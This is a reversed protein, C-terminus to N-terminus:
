FPIEALKQDIAYDPKAPETENALFASVNKIEAEIQDRKFMIKGALNKAKLDDIMIKIPKFGYRDYMEGFYRDIVQKGPNPIYREAADPVFVDCGLRGCENKEWSKRHTKEKKSLDKSKDKVNPIEKNPIQPPVTNGGLPSSYEGETVKHASSLEGRSQEWAVTAEKFIIDSLSYNSSLQKGSRRFCEETILYGKDELSRLCKRVWRTTLKSLFAIKEITIYRKSHLVNNFDQYNGIILLVLTEATTINQNEAITVLFRGGAFPDFIDSKKTIKKPQTIKDTKKSSMAKRESDSQM